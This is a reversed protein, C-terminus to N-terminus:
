ASLFNEYFAIRCHNWVLKLIRQDNLRYQQTPSPKQLLIQIIQSDDTNFLHILLSEESYPTDTCAYCNESDFTDKLLHHLPFELSLNIKLQLTIILKKAALFNFKNQFVEKFILSSNFLKGQLQFDTCFAITQIWLLFHRFHSM